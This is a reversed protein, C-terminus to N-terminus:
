VEVSFVASFHVRAFRGLGTLAIFRRRLLQATHSFSWALRATSELWVQESLRVGVRSALIPPPSEAFASSSRVGIMKFQERSALLEVCARVRVETGEHSPESVDVKAKNHM